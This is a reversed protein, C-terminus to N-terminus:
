IKENKVKKKCILFIRSEGYNSNRASDYIYFGIENLKKIILESDFITKEHVETYKRYMDNEEKVFINMEISHKFKKKKYHKMICTYKETEDIFIDNEFMEDFIGEEIFDFIFIGKDELNNYVNEFFNNLDSLSSFYNITDFNSMIFDFKQGEEYEKIKTIDAKLFKLNELNYKNKSIELMDDSIDIALVNHKDKAFLYALKSTGCGLDAIKMNKNKPLFSKLFKYWSNYDVFDMFEDYIHAFKKHIM